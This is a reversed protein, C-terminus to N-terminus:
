PDGGSRAVPLTFSFTSGEGVTSQAWIRGGHLEVLRKAIALGLGAGNANARRAQWFRDFLRPVDEPSIGSGSDRVSIQVEHEGAKAALAIWGRSTFKVANGLLNALIQLVRDGDAWVEPLDEDLELRLEVSSAGATRQLELAQALLRAPSVRARALEVHGSELRAVELLDRVLRQM